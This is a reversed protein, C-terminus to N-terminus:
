HAIRQAGLEVSVGSFGAVLVGTVVPDKPISCVAGHWLRVTEADANTASRIAFKIRGFYLSVKRGESFTRLIHAAVDQPVRQEITVEIDDLPKVKVPSGAWALPPWNFTASDNTLTGSVSDITIEEFAANFLVFIVRVVNESQLRDFYAATRVHQTTQVLSARSPKKLAARSFIASVFGFTSKTLPALADWKVAAAFALVFLGAYIAAIGPKGDRLSDSIGLVLVFLIIGAVVWKAAPMFKTPIDADSMFPPRWRDRPATM